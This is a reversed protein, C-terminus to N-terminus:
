IDSTVIILPLQPFVYHHYIFVEGMLLSDKHVCAVLLSVDYSGTAKIQLKRKKALSDMLGILPDSYMITMLEYGRSEMVLLRVYNAIHEGVEVFQEDDHNGQNGQNGQNGLDSCDDYDDEKDFITLMNHTTVVLLSTECEAKELIFKQRSYLISLTLSIFTGQQTPSSSPSVFDFPM